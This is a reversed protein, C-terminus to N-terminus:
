AAPRPLEIPAGTLAGTWLRQNRDVVQGSRAGGVLPLAEGPADIGHGEILEPQRGLEEAGDRVLAVGLGGGDLGLRDREDQGTAVDEGAGLGAGALRGGEHQRDELEEVALGRWFLAHSDGAMAARGPATSARRADEDEDRGALERELHLLADPGVAGLAGDFRDRDVAADAVVALEPGKTAARVDDDRRRPAEDVM